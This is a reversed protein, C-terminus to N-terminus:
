NESNGKMSDLYRIIALRVTASTSLCLEKSADQVRQYLSLPLELAIMKKDSKVEKEQIDIKM